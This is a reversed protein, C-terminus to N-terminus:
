LGAILFLPNMSFTLASVSIASYKAQPGSPRQFNAPPALWRYIGLFMRGPPTPSLIPHASNIAGRYAELSFSVNYFVSNRRGEPAFVGGGLEPPKRWRSIEALGGPWLLGSTDAHVKGIFRFFRREMDFRRKKKRKKQTGSQKKSASARDGLEANYGAGSKGM